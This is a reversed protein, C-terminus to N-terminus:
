IRASILKAWDRGIKTSEATAFARNFSFPSGSILDKMSGGEMLKM